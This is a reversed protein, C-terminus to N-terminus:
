SRFWIVASCRKERESESLFRKARRGVGFGTAKITSATLSEMPIHRPNTGAIEDHRVRISCNAGKPIAVPAAASVGLGGPNPLVSSAQVFSPQFTGALNRNSEFGDREECSRERIWAATLIGSM